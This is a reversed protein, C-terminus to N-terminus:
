ALTSMTTSSSSSSVLLPPSDCQGIGALHLNLYPVYLPLLLRFSLHSPFRKTTSTTPPSLQKLYPLTFYQKLTSHPFTRGLVSGAVSMSRKITPQKSYLLCILVFPLTKNLSQINNRSMQVLTHPPTTYSPSFISVCSVYEGGM